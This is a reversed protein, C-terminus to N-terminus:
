LARVAPSRNQIQAEFKLAIDRPNYHHIYWLIAGTFGSGAETDPPLYALISVMPSHKFGLITRFYQFCSQPKPQCTSTAQIIAHKTSRKQCLCVMTPLICNYRIKGGSYTELIFHTIKAVNCYVEEHVAPGALNSSTSAVGSMTPLTNTGAVCEFVTRM